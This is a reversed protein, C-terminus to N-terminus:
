ATKIEIQQFLPCIVVWVEIIIRAGSDWWKGIRDIPKLKVIVNYYGNILFALFVPM